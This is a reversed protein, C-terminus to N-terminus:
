HETPGPAWMNGLVRGSTSLLHQCPAQTAPHTWALCQTSPVRQRPTGLPHAAGLLLCCVGSPWSPYLCGEGCRCLGASLWVPMAQVGPKWQNTSPSQPLWAVEWFENGRRIHVRPGLSDSFSANGRRGRCVGVALAHM